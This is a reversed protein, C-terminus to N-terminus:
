QANGANARERMVKYIAFVGFFVLAIRSVYSAILLVYVIMLSIGYIVNQFSAGRTLTFAVLVVLTLVAATVILNLVNKNSM